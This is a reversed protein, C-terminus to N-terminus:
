GIKDNSHWPKILEAPVRRRIKGTFGRVILYEGNPFHKKVRWVYPSYRLEVSTKVPIFTFM